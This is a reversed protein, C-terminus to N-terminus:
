KIWSVIIGRAGPLILYKAEGISNKLKRGTKRAFGTIRIVEAAFLSLDFLKKLQFLTKRKIPPKAKYKNQM